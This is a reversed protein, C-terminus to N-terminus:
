DVLANLNGLLVINVNAGFSQLYKWFAERETQDSESAPGYASMFVLLEQGFKVKIGMLRSSVEKWEEVCLNMALSVMSAVGEM